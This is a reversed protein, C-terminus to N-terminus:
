ACAALGERFTPYQPTWGLVRKAKGNAVRRSESYFAHVQPSLDADELSQLPPPDVQLLQCAHEILLNQNSPEDDALNYAGAPAKSEIAALVGSVIDDVHIRSFVQDPLDIRRAKGSKVRDIASRGPGYIGPLRFVRAGAALWRTDCQARAVRRGGGPKASEDVWAGGTDGYVGTSSLYALWKDVVDDAYRDLVPDSGNAPPVSSLVHSADALVARVGPEDDFDLNGASGTADVHWGQARLADAIRSATYGLGFILMHSMISRSLGRAPNVITASPVNDAKWQMSRRVRNEGSPHTYFIFEELASPELKRYESLRMAARAFGDPEQAAEHGFADAQNEQVRTLNNFAPTALMFYASLVISLVPLSAPDAVGRVGWPEGYRAILWPAIRSVLFLGLAFIVLIGLVRWPGHNLKYHGLEHGMVAVIEEESTRELLNDNLSIRITPGLGSVNASIRKHQKSQDFVYVNDAPVDYDAAMAVIRDRLPGDEMEAYTNFLPAIFVPAVMVALFMFIGVVGTGWLWWSRPAKRIVWYILAILIPAFLFSLGMGIALEGFWAGFGQDLLDYQKERFFGTYITWPLTLIAGAISYLLATLWAIAFPRKFWKEGLDRFTSALRFRLILWDILVAVLTGWMILWYGGEFYADSTERAPGQLTDLYVRTAAEVDFAGAASALLELM